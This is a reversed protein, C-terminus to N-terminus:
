RRWWDGLSMDLFGRVVGDRGGWSELSLQMPRCLYLSLLALHAKTLDLVEHLDLPYM